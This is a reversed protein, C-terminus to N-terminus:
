AAHDAARRFRVSLGYWLLGATALILFGVVSSSIAVRMGGWILGPPANGALEISRASVMVGVLTGVVGTLAGFAGWFLISKLRDQMHVTSGSVLSQFALGALVLVMAFSLFLPFRIVGMETWFQAM